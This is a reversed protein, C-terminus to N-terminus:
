RQPGLRVDELHGLPLWTNGDFGRVRTRVLDLRQRRVLFLAPRDRRVQGELLRGLRLVDDGETGYIERVLSDAVPSAYGMGNWSGWSAFLSSLDPSIPPQFGLLAAEFDGSLFREFVEPGELPTPRLAVGIRSLDEELFTAMQERTLNNRDYILTLFRRAPAGPPPVTPYGLIRAATELDPRRSSDPDAFFGGNGTAYTQNGVAFLRRLRDRDIALDVAERLDAGIGDRGLSWLLLEVSGVAGSHIRVLKADLARRAIGEASVDLAVDAEDRLVREIRGPDGPLTETLVGEIRPRMGVELDTSAALRVAGARDTPEIRFRAARPPSPVPVGAEVELAGTALDIETKSLVPLTAVELALWSPVGAVFNLAVLGDGTADVSRLIRDRGRPDRRVEDAPIRAENGRGAGRPGPRVPLLGHDELYRYSRVVDGAVVRTGDSWSRKPDLELLLTGTEANWQWGLALDPRAIPLTGPLGVSRPAGSEPGKPEPSPTGFEPAASDPSRTPSEQGTSGPSSMGSELPAPELRVLSAYTYRWLELQFPRRGDAPDTVPDVPLVVRLWPTSVPPAETEDGGSEPDPTGPSCGLLVFLLLVFRLLV